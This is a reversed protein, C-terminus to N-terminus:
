YVASKEPNAALKAEIMRLFEAQAAQEAQGPIAKPKKYV